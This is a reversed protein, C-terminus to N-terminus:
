FQYRSFGGDVIMVTGTIYNALPSALFVALVALEEPQGYRGMPIERKAFVEREEDTFRQRSQETVIRGPPICNVTVGRAALERSLGKAWSHMAAKAPLTANIGLPESIGTINIIRGWGTSLIGPLLAHTLQRPRTYNLLLTRDWIEDGSELSTPESHGANNVLIQIQGQAQVARAIAGSADESTVDQALVSPRVGGSNEIEDALEEVLHGRRSVAIVHVGEHALQRVIERGIGASAGTVLARKGRLMLDM